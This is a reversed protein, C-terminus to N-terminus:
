TRCSTPIPGTRAHRDPPPRPPEPFVAGMLGLLRRAAPALYRGRRTYVGFHRTPFYEDLPIVSVRDTEHISISPVVAIGLGNEVYRKIVGWGGVTIAVNDDIGFKRAATEGFQMSYAGQPPVIVPWGAAEEPSVATREALPHKRSTILVIDYRLLERFTVTDEVLPHADQAGLVFEVADDLLLELGESLRCMRVRVRLEPYMDRLRKIHRPLVVATGAVSAAIDLRGPDFTDIREMLDAPLRELGRVLPEAVEYLLEGARTLSIGAGGREFLAAGLEHELERVRLSVAPQVLGLREGAQTFSKLDASLCFARLQGLRDRKRYLRLRDVAM